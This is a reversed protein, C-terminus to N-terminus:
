PAQYVPIKVMKDILKNNYMFKVLEQYKEEHFASPDEAFTSLTVKWSARNLPNDLDDKYSIFSKWADDPNNKIYAVAEKLANNFRAFRPDHQFDQNAVLIIEEYSPIGYDEPYFAKAPVGEQELEINEFNRYSGIVGDVKKSLLSPVITWNINVTKVDNPQLGVHKLMAALIISDYGAVSYGITKGKFDALTNIGSDARAVLNNLPSQILTSVKILPLDESLHQIFRPQGNSGLDIKKAAALRPPLSGDSPDIIEVDLNHKNFFGKQKAVIVPAHTPNTFWGFMVTVKDTAYAINFFSTTLLTTLLLKKM